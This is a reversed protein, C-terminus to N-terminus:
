NDKMSHNKKKKKVNKGHYTAIVEGFFQRLEDARSIIIMETWHIFSDKNFYIWCGCAFLKIDAKLSKEEKQWAEHYAPFMHFNWSFFNFYKPTGKQSDKMGDTKTKCDNKIKQFFQHVFLAFDLIKNSM